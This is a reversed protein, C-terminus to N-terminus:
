FENEYSIYNCYNLVCPFYLVPLPMCREFHGLRNKHIHIHLRLYVFLFCCLSKGPRSCKGVFVSRFSSYDCLFNLVTAKFYVRRIVYLEDPTYFEHLKCQLITLYLASANSSFAIKSQASIFNKLKDSIPSCIGLPLFIKWLVPWVSTIPTQIFTHFRWESALSCKTSILMRM